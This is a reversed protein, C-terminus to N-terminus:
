GETTLTSLHDVEIVVLVIVATITQHHHDEDVMLSNWRFTYLVLTFSALTILCFFFCMYVHLLFLTGLIGVRLRHGDFDYGNRGQVADEVDREDEFQLLHNLIFM